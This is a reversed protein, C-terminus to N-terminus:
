KNEILNIFDYKDLVVVETNDVGYKVSLMPIRRSLLAERAIKKWMKEPISFSGKTSTKSDILFQETKVDGKAFWLGGSCPTQKGGFEKADSFEKKQWNKKAM